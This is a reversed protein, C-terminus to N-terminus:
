GVLPGLPFRERVSYESGDKGPRSEYLLFEDVSWELGVVIGETFRQTGWAAEEAGAPSKKVHEEFSFKDKRAGRPVQKEGCAAVIEAMTRAGAATKRRALTVHPHYSREEVAFGCAMVAQEVASQLEVLERSAGVEALLVGARAFSGLGDLRLRVPRARVEHLADVVCGYRAEDAQGLFKLTVHWSAPAQWRLGDEPRQLTGVVRELAARVVDDVGLGVFLRM